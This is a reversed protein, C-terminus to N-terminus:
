EHTHEADSIGKLVTLYRDKLVGIVDDQGKAPAGVFIDNQM